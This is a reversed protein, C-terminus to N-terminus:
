RTTAGVPRAPGAPAAPEVRLIQHGCRWLAEVFADSRQGVFHVVAYRRDGHDFVSASTLRLGRQAALSSMDGLVDGDEAVVCTVEYGPQDAGSMCVFARLLDQETLIGVLRGRDVVPLCGFKRDHLIRAAAAISTNPPISFPQPTMVEGVTAGDRDVARPSMPHVGADAALFLDHSSVLGVLRADDDDAVVLLHRVRRQAMLRAARSIPMDATATLLDTAMWLSTDM